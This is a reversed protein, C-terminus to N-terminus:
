GSVCQWMGASKFQWFCQQSVKLCHPTQTQYKSLVSKISRKADSSHEAYNTLSQFQLPSGWYNANQLWGAREVNRQAVDITTRWHQLTLCFNCLCLDIEQVPQRINCILMASSAAKPLSVSPAEHVTLKRRLLTSDFRQEKLESGPSTFSVTLSNMASTSMFSFYTYSTPNISKPVSWTQSILLM